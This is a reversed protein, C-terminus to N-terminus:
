LTMVPISLGKDHLKKFQEKAVERFKEWEFDKVSKKEQKQEALRELIRRIMPLREGRDPLLCLSEIVTL